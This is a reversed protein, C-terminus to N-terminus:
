AGSRASARLKSPPRGCMRDPPRTAPTPRMPTAAVMRMWPNSMPWGMAAFPACRGWAGDLTDDCRNGNGIFSSHCWANVHLVDDRADEDCLPVLPPRVLEIDGYTDVFDRTGYGLLYLATDHM